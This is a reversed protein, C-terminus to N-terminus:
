FSLENESLIESCHKKYFECLTVYQMPVQSLDESIREDIKLLQVFM